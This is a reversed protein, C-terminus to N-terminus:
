SVSIEADHWLINVNGMSALPVSNCCYNQGRAPAPPPIYPPPQERSDGESTIYYVFM